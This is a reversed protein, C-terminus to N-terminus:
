FENNVLAFGFDALKVCHLREGNLGIEQKFILINDLKIDRHIIGKEHIFHLILLIQELIFRAEV